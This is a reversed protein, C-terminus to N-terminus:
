YDSRSLKDVRQRLKKKSSEFTLADYVRYWDQVDLVRPYLMAAMAIKTTEFDALRILVVVQNATFFNHEAASEVLRLRERAFSADGVSERLRAFQSSDMAVPSAPEVVVPEDAAVRDLARERTREILRQIKQKTRRTHRADNLKEIRDLGDSLEAYGAEYMEARAQWYGVTNNRRRADADTASFGAALLAAAALTVISTNAPSM